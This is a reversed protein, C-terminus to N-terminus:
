REVHAAPWLARLPRQFTREISPNSAQSLFMACEPLRRAGVRSARAYEGACLPSASKPAATSPLAALLALSCRCHSRAAASLCPPRHSSQQKESPVRQRPSWGTSPVEVKFSSRTVAAAARLTRRYEDRTAGATLRGGVSPRGLSRNTRNARYALRTSRTCCRRRRANQM